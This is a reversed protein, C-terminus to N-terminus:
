AASEEAHPQQNDNAAGDIMAVRSRSVEGFERHYTIAQLSRGSLFGSGFHWADQPIPAQHSECIVGHGETALKSHHHIHFGHVYRFRTAGWDQARRHAMISPMDALKVTHGHTAGLLVRGFRLWWFLSPDVDVTVRPEARYWAFLFYAVAASSHEDHNGALVRVIVRGHQRLTADIAHVMLRCAVGLVKQYRGDVDLANGSRATQNQNNDSHLLDGGGLVVALGSAPTRAILDDIGAAITREAIGLDWNRETERGWAYMGLHLDNLPILTLLTEASAPAPTPIACPAYDVFAAKLAEAIDGPAYENRTKVWKQVVRGETDVLASEGKVTHGAPTAFVPGPAKAQRVWAGNPAKSSVSKVAFGPLVPAFGLMGREAMRKRRKQVAKQSIGLARAAGRVSGAQALADATAQLTDDDLPQM